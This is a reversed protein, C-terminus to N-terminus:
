EVTISVQESLESALGNTDYVRIRFYWEGAPLDTFTYSSEGSEVSVTKTLADPNEGYVIEYRDIESLSISSGDTRTGPATWELQATANKSDPIESEPATPGPGPLPELSRPNLNSYYAEINTIGSSNLVVNADPILMATGYTLEWIDPINDGDTDHESSNSPDPTLMVDSQNIQTNAETDVIELKATAGVTREFYEITVPLRDDAALDATAVNTTPGRPVWQDIVRERGLYLRAGDDTTLRFEYTRNGSSHPVEFLGSWRISFYDTPMDQAPSGRLWDFDIAKDNRVLILSEFNQGAFYQGTYGAIYSPTASTRPTDYPDNMRTDAEYEELNTAGDGDLDLGADAPDTPDLNFAYEVGDPIGDSDTDIANPNTGAFFEDAATMLDNDSDSLSDSPTAPDLEYFTEWNDYLGDKDNDLPPYAPDYGLGRSADFHGVAYGRAFSAESNGDDPYQSSSLSFLAPSSIIQQEFGPGEWAVSFHSDVPGQKYLLQFYYFRGKQLEILGSKQSEYKTYDRTGTAGPAIAIQKASSPQDSTGLWFETQDDGAVFFQYLGDQPPSILGQVMAGYDDGKSEPLELSNLIGLEDPNDPFSALTTIASTQLGTVNYWYRIQVEGQTRVQPLSATPPLKQIDKLSWSQCGSLALTCALTTTIMRNNM